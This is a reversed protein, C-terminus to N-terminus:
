RKPRAPFGSRRCSHWLAIYVYSAFSGLKALVYLINDNLDPQSARGGVHIGSLSPSRLLRLKGAEGIRITPRRKPRAPFGSRRSSHGQAISVYSAFSGLKAM